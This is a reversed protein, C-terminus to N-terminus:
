PGTAPLVIVHGAPRTDGQDGHPVRYRELINAGAQDEILYYDYVGDTREFVLKAAFSNGMQRQVEEDVQAKTAARYGDCGSILMPLALLVHLLPSFRLNKVAPSAPARLPKIGM